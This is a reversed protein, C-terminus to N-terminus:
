GDIKDRIIIIIIWRLQSSSFPAKVIKRQLFLHNRSIVKIIDLFVKKKKQCPHKENKKLTGLGCDSNPLHPLLSIHHLIM